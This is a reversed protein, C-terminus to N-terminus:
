LDEFNPDSSRARSYYINEVAIKQKLTYGTEECQDKISLLTEEAFTFRGDNVMWEIKKAFGEPDPGRGMTTQPGADPKLNLDEPRRGKGM